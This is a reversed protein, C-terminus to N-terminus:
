FIFVRLGDGDNQALNVLRMRGHHQGGQRFVEGHFYTMRMSRMSPTLLLIIHLSHQAGLEQRVQLAGVPAIAM